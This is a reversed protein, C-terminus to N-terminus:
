WASRERDVRSALSPQLRLARDLSAEAERKLNLRLEPTTRPLRARWRLWHARWFHGAGWASAIALCREAAAGGEAVLAELGGPYGKGKGEEALLALAEAKMLHLDYPRNLGMAAARDAGRLVEKPAPGLPQGGRSRGRGEALTLLARAYAGEPDKPFGTSMRRLLERARDWAERRAAGDEEEGLHIWAIAEDVVPMAHTPNLARARQYAQLAQRLAVRANLGLAAEYHAQVLWADGLNIWHSFDEPALETARGLARVCDQVANRPDRGFRWEHEAWQGLILGMAGHGQAMDPAFALTQAAFAFGEKYAEEGAEGRWLRHLLKWACVKTAYLSAEVDHPDQDLLQRGARIARDFAASPDMGTNRLHNGLTGHAILVARLATRDGPAKALAQDALRTAASLAELCPQARESLYRGWLALVESELADTEARAPDIRSSVKLAALCGEVLPKPSAGGRWSRVLRELGVRALGLPLRPDSPAIAAAARYASEASALLPEPADRSERAMRLRLDGEWAWAEYLWPDGAQVAKFMRLAEEDRREVMALVAAHFAEPELGAGAAGRIHRRAEDGFEAELAKMRSARVGADAIRMAEEVRQAFLDALARGLAYRVEPTRLGMSWAQQLHTRAGAPDGLALSVRGLFYAGPALAQADSRAERQLAEMRRLVKLRDATLDHEPLLHAYRLYAEIREAEQGFRQAIAVSRQSQHREWMGWSGSGLALALAAGSVLSLAPHKKVRRWLRELLRTRRALIPDGDRVRRLEDGLARASDYRRAPMKELCKMVVTDLDRPVEAKHRLSTPDRDLTATLVELGKLDGFPVDGAFLEYLCVGLAYVDSRRDLGGEAGRAQEPSMYHVTGMVMGSETLGPASGARALGFDLVYAHLGGEGREVMLNSPKLDRHVLGEQHAAHVGECVQVMVQLKDDLSLDKALASLTRGQILQMAIFAQGGWEGAEYVRCVNPHEVRAQLAAEQLFRASLQPDDKRLLKLAVQRQLTDDRGQYIRGMGGEALFRLDRFHGWAEIREAHFLSSNSRLPGASAPAEGQKARSARTPEEEDRSM